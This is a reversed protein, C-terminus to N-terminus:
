SSSDTILGYNALETLLSALAANGGRSGSVTPKGIPTTAHFGLQSASGTEKIRFAEVGGAGMAWEDAAVWWYGSDIDNIFSGAPRSVGLAADVDFQVQIGNQFSVSPDLSSTGSYAFIAQPEDSTDDVSADTLTLSMATNVGTVSPSSLAVRLSRAVGSGVPFVQLLGGYTEDADGSYFAISDPDVGAIEIRNGSDDSKFVSGANLIVDGRITVNNFEADGSDRSIQWGASGAAYDDSELTTDLARSQV